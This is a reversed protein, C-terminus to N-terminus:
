WRSWSPLQCSSSSRISPHSNSALEYRCRISATAAAAAPYAPQLDRRNSSSCCCCSRRCRCCCCHDLVVLPRSDYMLTRARWFQLPVRFLPRWFPPIVGLLMRRRVASQHAFLWDPQGYLCAAAIAAVQCRISERMFSLFCFM